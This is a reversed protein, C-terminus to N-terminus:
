TKSIQEVAKDPQTTVLFVPINKKSAEAYIREFGTQWKSVPDSFKECFLLVTYPLDLISKTSDQNSMGVLTFGKIPPEANGKRILKDKRNVFKYTALDAPLETPAFEYEKGGKEYIFRIAFSDPRAGEPIQM